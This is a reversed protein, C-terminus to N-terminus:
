KGSIKLTQEVIELIELIMMTQSHNKGYKTRAIEYAKKVYDHSKKYEKKKFYVTGIYFYNTCFDLHGAPLTKEYIKLANQLNKLAAANNDLHIYTAGINNYNRALDSHDAPLIQKNLELANQYYRLANAFNRLKFYAGGVHSYSLALDPHDKSLGQKRIALAKQFNELAATCNDMHLYATGINDYIRALDPHNAPLVQKRIALAKQFIELAAVNNNTHLYATGINNYSRALDLHNAPLVRKRIALAKQFIELAAVSNNTHLYAAGINNYSRALDLHNSPLVQERIALAKRYHKLATAFDKKQYAYILGINDYITAIDPHDAPLIKEYIKLAKQYSKLAEAYNTQLFYATGINNYVIASDETEPAHHEYLEVAIKLLALAEKHKGLNNLISGATGSVFAKLQWENIKHIEPIKANIADIVKIDKNGSRTPDASMFIDRLFLLYKKAIDAQKKAESKQRNAEQENAIAQNKNATALREARIAWGTLLAFIFTAIAAIVAYIKAQRVKEADVTAKIKERNVGLMYSMTQVVGNEWGTQERDGDDPIMSPLNRMTIKELRLPEPLCEKENGSGPEGSLIVPVIARYDNNHTALFYKIEENVWHSAASEPSCIVILFRSHEIANKIDVTFSEKGTELDRRDRFIPRLFKQDPPLNEKAVYKVPIRFHEMTKHLYSASKSNKRSYSIFAYYQNTNERLNM